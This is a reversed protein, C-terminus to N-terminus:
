KDLRASPMHVSEGHLLVHRICEDRDNTGFANFLESTTASRQERHGLHGVEGAYLDYRALVQCTLRHVFCFLHFENAEVLPVDQSAGKKRMSLVKDVADKEVICYFHDRGGLGEHHTTLRFAQMEQSLITDSDVPTVNVAIRVEKNSFSM